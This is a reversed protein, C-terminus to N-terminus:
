NEDPRLDYYQNLRPSALRKSKGNLWQVEVWDVKDEKGLGFHATNSHQSRYSDGTVLRRIQTEHSSHLIIKAGIPSYGKGSERLRIGLWNNKEPWANRFMYLGSQPRPWVEHSMVLLDVRGDGDLDDSVVNRSDQPMAVGMLYGANWFSKGAENMFLFNQQFGGYSQGAGYRKTGISRFYFDLVPNHESRALYIDHRWFQPEYDKASQRSKHGNAIYIDLDGDNDFDFSTAGWSWGSEAVQDNFPAQRFGHDAALYMRNGYSMRARMEQHAPFAPPGLKLYDLRQAVASNMGIVFFDLQGDLNFDGFTHAMGFSHTEDIEESTVDTFSAQGNNHYLDVGAFDSVVVLDLDGDDDLDVFSASYTRRFRKKALGSAVTRDQFHGQGDNMLLYSPFGDNADYYPTPMQGAVYPLKYQALWLDLDGDGDIDGATLLFPNLLVDKTTWVRIGPKNFRGASDGGFLLLGDHDACLFDANGDGTFDAIISTFMAKPALQCLTGPEFRGQGRNRYLLNRSGLIIESLGDGDLDYVILPDIFPNTEDRRMMKSVAPEFAPEGQRVIIELDRGDITEPRPSHTEDIEKEWEVHLNGKIIVREQRQRNKIHATLAIVSSPKDKDPDFRPHRWETEEIEYGQARSELLWQRWDQKTIRREQSEFRIVKIGWERVEPATANGLVLQGFDFKELISFRDEQGRLEDWLRIFVDECKEALLEKAWVTQDLENERSEVALFQSM